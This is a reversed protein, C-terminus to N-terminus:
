KRMVQEHTPGVLTQTRAKAAIHVHQRSPERSGGDPVGGRSGTRGSAARRKRTHWQQGAARRQHGTARVLQPERDCSAARSHVFRGATLETAACCRLSFCLDPETCKSKASADRFSGQTVEGITENFYGHRRCVCVVRATLPHASCEDRM